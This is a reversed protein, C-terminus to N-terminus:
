GGGFGFGRMWESGKAEIEGAVRGQVVVGPRREVDPGGLRSASASVGRHGSGVGASQALARHPLNAPM